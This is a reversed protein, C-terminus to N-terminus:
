VSWLRNMRNISKWDNVIEIQRVIGAAFLGAPLQVFVIFCLWHGFKSFGSKM